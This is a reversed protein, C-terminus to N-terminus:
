DDDDDKEFAMKSINFKKGSKMEGVIIGWIQMEELTLQTAVDWPVGSTVLGLVGRLM